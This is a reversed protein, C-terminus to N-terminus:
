SPLRGARVLLERRELWRAYSPRRRQVTDMGALLEAGCEILEAPEVCSCIRQHCGGCVTAGYSVRPDVIGIAM